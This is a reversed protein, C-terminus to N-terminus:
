AALPTAPTFASKASAELRKAYLRRCSACDPYARKRSAVDMVLTRYRIWPQLRVGCLTRTSSTEIHNRGGPPLDKRAPRSYRTFWKM